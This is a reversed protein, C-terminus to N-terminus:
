PILLFITMLKVGTSSNWPTNISKGQKLTNVRISVEAAQIRFMRMRNTIHQQKVAQCVRKKVM